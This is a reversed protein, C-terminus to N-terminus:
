SKQVTFEKTLIGFPTTLLIKYSTGIEFNKLDIEYITNVPLTSTNEKILIKNGNIVSLETVEEGLAEFDIFLLKNKTDTFFIATSLDEHDMKVSIKSSESYDAYGLLEQAFLNSTTMLLCFTFITFFLKKLM